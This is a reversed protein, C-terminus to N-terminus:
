FDYYRNAIVTSIGLEMYNGIKHGSVFKVERRDFMAYIGLMTKANLVLRAVVQNHIIQEPAVQGIRHKWMVPSLFIDRGVNDDDSMQDTLAWTHKFRLSLNFIRLQSIFVFEKFDAGL